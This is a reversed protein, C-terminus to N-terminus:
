FRDCTGDTPAIYPSVSGKTAFTVASQAVACGRVEAQAGFTIATGALISGELVSNAGLTAATGLAWVVNEARAGNKLVIRTNAGTGLTTAAQFLFKPHLENLGDLTVKGGAAITITSTSSYIGPTFTLGGIELPMSEGGVKGLTAAHALKISAAFEASDAVIDGSKLQPTGTIATGPSVGVDGSQVRTAVGDFTITTRAHVAYNKCVCASPRALRRLRNYIARAKHIEGDITLPIPCNVVHKPELSTLNYDDRSTGKPVVPPFERITVHGEDRLVLVRKLSKVVETAKHEWHAFGIHWMPSYDDEPMFYSPVGIQGGLPGGGALGFGDEETPPYSDRLKKGPLFQVLPVAVDGLHQHKPVYPIGMAMAPGKPYSDVVVYFSVYDGEEAWSKHLKLTVTAVAQNEGTPPIDIALAHGTTKAWEEGNYMCKTNPPEDPFETCDADVRLKEWPESGWQVFFANVVVNPQGNMTVRRLPSYTNDHDQDPMTQTSGPGGPAPAVPNPLDGDFVWRVGDHPLLAEDTANYYTALGMAKAPTDTLKGGWLVGFEDALAADSIDHLVFYVFRNHESMYGRYLPLKVWGREDNTPSLADGIPENAFDFGGYTADRIWVDVPDLAPGFEGGDTEGTRFTTGLGHSDVYTVGAWTPVPTDFLSVQGSGEIDWRLLMAHDEHQTNHCHMMYTGAFDRFRYAIEVMTGSEPQPGLRFVDKRAWKEWPPPAKGDRRLIIGEEFHIHIPHSWTGSNILRWVELPSEPASSSAVSVRTADMKLSKGGDTGIGWPNKVEGPEGPTVDKEFEFTRHTASALEEASPRRLPIMTKKGEVYDAPDMSQDEEFDGGAVRLEMFPGVVPDAVYRNNADVVPTTPQAMAEEVSFVRDTVKGTKHGLFNVFLLRTGKKLGAFDVVIDYREAIGVVPLTGDPFHVAHEMINGDNAVMYFPVPDHTVANVLAVKFFRSVSGDLIRFRYRRARVDFWPKYCFNVTMVDGLFGLQNYPNFWLQGTSDFAKDALVLNVDYDRNGWDLHTGSPLRLNVGDDVAENGRDLASYYNMMAMSGKYVNPATFDLMHDHFWHTSMTERWDGPIQTTGGAGDPTAAREDTAKVNVSDHGALALPWRYDYFQGPFFFANTYGDSEAPTHGNHEHTTLTHIGFGRNNTMNVPLANHHRFVVPHGYRVQLLKPPFTGDFTWVADPEQVAMKPHFRVATNASRASYLGKSGFETGAAWAHRQTLDRLGGNSRAGTTATNVYEKPRFEKWRQHAFSKGGPRGEVPPAPSITKGLYKQVLKQWTNSFKTNSHVLPLPTLPQGLFEDLATGDPCTEATAPVPLTHAFTGPTVGDPGGDEVGTTSSDFAKSGFEEFRLLRSTFPEADFLPSPPGNSPMNFVGNDTQEDHGVVNNLQTDHEL